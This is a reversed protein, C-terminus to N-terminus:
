WRRAFGMFDHFPIQGKNIATRLISGEGTLHQQGLLEDLSSPRLREALPTQM